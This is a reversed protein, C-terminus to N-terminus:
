PLCQSEEVLPLAGAVMSLTFDGTEDAKGTRLMVKLPHGSGVVVLRAHCAGGSDDDTGIATAFGRYLVMFADFNGSKYDVTVTDGVPIELEWIQYHSGGLKQDPPGLSGEITGGLALSGNSQFFGGCRKSSPPPVTGPLVSLEYHGVKARYTSTVYVIYRGNEPLVYTLHPNCEGGSDDDTELITDLSDALFLHANFDISAISMTVTDGTEGSFLFMEYWSGDVLSDGGAVLQGTYTEGVSIDLFPNDDQATAATALAAAFLTVLMTARLTVRLDESLAQQIRSVVPPIEGSSGNPV